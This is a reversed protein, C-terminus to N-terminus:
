SINNFTTLLPLEPTDRQARKARKARPRLRKPLKDLVTAM